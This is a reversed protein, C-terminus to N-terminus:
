SSVSVTVVIPYLCRNCAAAFTVIAILLSAVALFLVREATVM